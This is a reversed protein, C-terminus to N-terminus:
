GWVRVFGCLGRLAGLCCLGACCGWVASFVGKFRSYLCIELAVCRSCLSLSSLLLSCAVFPASLGSLRVVQVRHVRGGGGCFLIFAAGCFGRFYFLNKNKGNKTESFGSFVGFRVLYFIVKVVKPPQKARIIPPFPFSWPVFPSQRSCLSCLVLSVGGRNGSRCTGKMGM